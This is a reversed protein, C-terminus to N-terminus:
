TLYLNADDDIELGHAYPSDSNPPMQLKLPEFKYQWPAQGVIPLTNDNTITVDSCSAWVQTSQQVNCGLPVFVCRDFLYALSFLICSYASLRM